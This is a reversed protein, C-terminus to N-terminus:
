GINHIDSSNRAASRMSPFNIHSVTRKQSSQQESHEYLAIEQANIVDISRGCIRVYSNKKMM